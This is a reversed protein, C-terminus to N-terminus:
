RSSMKHWKAAVPDLATKGLIFDEVHMNERDEEKFYKDYPIIFRQLRPWEHQAVSALLGSWNAIGQPLSVSMGDLTVDGLSSSATKFFNLLGTSSVSVTSIRLQRLPNSSLSQLAPGLTLRDPVHHLGTRHLSERAETMGIILRELKRTRRCVHNLSRVQARHGMYVEGIELTRLHDFLTSEGPSTVTAYRCLTKSDYAKWTLSNEILDAFSYPPNFEIKLPPKKTTDQQWHDNLKLHELKVDANILARFVAVAAKTGYFDIETGRLYHFAEFIETAGM